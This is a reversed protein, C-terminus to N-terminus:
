SIVTLLWCNHIKSNRKFDEPLTKSSIDVAKFGAESLAEIDMKFNRNNNSFVITGGERLRKKLDTLLAVHDRQVDFTNEMRKSNSFTPPDVFILDYTSTEKKIWQLCDEQIFNHNNLKFGNAKMNEKAWNLYTRSMDVTTTTKAGGTAAYVSASGTYAFVNLFDKGKSMEGILKRTLRHDLFLGTDLYDWLNVIFFRNYERVLLTHKSDDIKEYQADGKKRERVKMILQDGKIGTVALVVQMIDLLHQKAVPAPVSKPAAYEQIVIYDGYRDIAVNYNPIDSDYIRYAEVGERRAWKELHKINKQLRNAFDPAVKLAQDKSVVPIPKESVENNESLANIEFTRLQCELAGNYLKYRNEYRLRICSLLDQSSSIVGVRWGKFEARLRNGLETYVELLEAFNGLREGYPPNCVVLGPNKDSLPNTLSHLECVDVSVIDQLEARAINEKAKAIVNADADFGIFSIKAEKLKKKGERAIELAESKFKAFVSADSIKLKAFGYKHRYIGPAINAAQMAAEIILTGSGCMPDVVNGGKYGSKKVIAAALNEKLPAAGAVTRYERQHLPKGSLDLSVTVFNKRDMHVNIRVDPNDRDVSPRLSQVKVFRDCIADKIRLAGYQTNRIFDNQGNFDVAITVDHDFYNEYSFSYAGMYFELDNDAHYTGISLLVRTAFRSWLCVKMGIEMEGSFSVGAVTEKVTTAGLSQVEERLLGELGKPCTAFFKLM